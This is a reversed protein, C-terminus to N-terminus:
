ALHQDVSIKSKAETHDPKTDPMSTQVLFIFKGDVGSNM